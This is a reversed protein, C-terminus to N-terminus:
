CANGTHWNGESVQPKGSDSSSGYAYVTIMYGGNRGGELGTEDTRGPVFYPPCVGIICYINGDTDEHCEADFVAVDSVLRYASAQPALALVALFVLALM